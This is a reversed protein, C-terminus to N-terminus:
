LACELLGALSLGDVMAFDSLLTLKLEASEDVADHGVWEGM